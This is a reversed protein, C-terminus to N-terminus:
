RSTYQLPPGKKLKRTDRCLMKVTFTAYLGLFFHLDKVEKERGEKLTDQNQTEREKEIKITETKARRPLSHNKRRRRKGKKKKRKGNNM